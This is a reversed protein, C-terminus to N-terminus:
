ASLLWQCRHRQDPLFSRALCIVLTSSESPNMKRRRYRSLSTSSTYSAMRSDIRAGEGQSAHDITKGDYMLLCACETTPAQQIVDISAIPKRVQGIPHPATPGPLTYRGCRGPQHCSETKLMQAQIPYLDHYGLLVYGTHPNGLLCARPFLPPESPSYGNTIPYVVRDKEGKDGLIKSCRM